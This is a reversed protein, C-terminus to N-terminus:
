AVEPVDTQPPWNTVCAEVEVLKPDFDWRQVEPCRHMALVPETQVVQMATAGGQVVANSHDDHQCERAFLGSAAHVSV